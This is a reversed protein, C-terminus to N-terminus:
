KKGIVDEIASAVNGIAPLANQLAPFVEQGIQGIKDAVKGGGTTSSLESADITEFPSDPSRTQMITTRENPPSQLGRVRPGHHALAGNHQRIASGATGANIAAAAV